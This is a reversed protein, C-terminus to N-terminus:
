GSDISVPTADLLEVLNRADPTPRMSAARTEVCRGPTLM